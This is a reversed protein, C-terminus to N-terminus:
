SGERGLCGRELPATKDPYRSCQAAARIRPWLRQLLLWYFRTAVGSHVRPARDAGIITLPGLEGGAPLGVSYRQLLFIRM